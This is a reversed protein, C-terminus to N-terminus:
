RGTLPRRARPQPGGRGVHEVSHDQEASPEVEGLDVRASRDRGRRLSAPLWDARRRVRESVGNRLAAVCTTVDARLEEVVADLPRRSYRELEVALVLRDLAAAAEPNTDRGTVPRPVASPAAFHESLFSGAARPSRGAPWARGLDTASDRLEAWASEASGARWRSERRVRRVSRPVMLLVGLLLTGLVGIGVRVWPFGNGTGGETSAAPDLVSTRASAAQTADTSSTPTSATPSSTDVPPLEARTYDPALGTRGGPTPDFLVWGSGPFYLETWAHLDRSSYVYTDDGTQTPRLFGVAVRAPIGLTRAMVAMASAFQECYGTRGDRGETLFAELDQSGNGSPADLSYTFEGSDRFWEQLVVAQEFPNTRGTTVELALKRVVSPLDSPLELYTDRINSPPVGASALEEQTYELEIGTARYDLSSATDDNGSLFDMTSDDYKWIGPADVEAAPAPVPLWRSEFDESTVYSADYETRSVTSDVGVPAPLTEGNATQDDPVSRNGTTWEQGNFNSLVAFRLHHPAEQDTTVSVLDVDEGQKLDRRLDTMPNVIKLADGSGPGQGAGFLSLNLTPILVPLLVAAVTAVSGIAVANGRASGTRVGFGGLDGEESKGRVQRGWQWFREDERLFMMMLFGAASLIFVGSSVQRDWVTVPLTYVMLLVLGSVPVRGLGGAFFDVMIVALVGAMVLLPAVSAASEPVPAAFSRATEIADAFTSLTDKLEGTTPLLWARNRGGYMTVLVLAAVLLQVLPVAAVPLRLWRLVAGGLTLLLGLALLPRIYAGHNDAFGSWNLVTFWTTMASMAAFQLGRGLSVRPRSM